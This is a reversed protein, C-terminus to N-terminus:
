PEAADGAGFAVHHMSVQQANYGAVFHGHMYFFGKKCEDVFSRANADLCAAAADGVGHVQHSTSRAQRFIQGLENSTSMALDITPPM